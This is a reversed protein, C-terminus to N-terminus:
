IKGHKEHDHGHEEHDHGHEKHHLGKKYQADAEIIGCLIRAGGPSNAYDDSSAHIILSRGFTERMRLKPALVTASIKGSPDAYLMPLDGRHSDGYPGAHNKGEHPSYHPGADSGNDGCAPNEHMHFGHFGPEVNSIDAKMVVGHRDRYLKITGAPDGTKLHIMSVSVPHHSWKKHMKDGHGCASFLFVVALVPILLLFM